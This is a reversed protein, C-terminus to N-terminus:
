AVNMLTVVKDHDSYYCGAIKCEFSSPSFPKKCFLYVHDLVRGEIHTAEQVVQIFDMGKLLENM